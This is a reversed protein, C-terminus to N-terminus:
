VNPNELKKWDYEVEYEQLGLAHAIQVRNKFFYGEIEDSTNFPGYYQITEIGLHSDTYHILLIYM